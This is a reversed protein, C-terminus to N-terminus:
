TADKDKYKRIDAGTRLPELLPLLANLDCPKLLFHDFGVAEGLLRDVPSTWQGSIAIMLPALDRHRERLERAIAYGSAGPLNIDAIVVDPRFLRCM